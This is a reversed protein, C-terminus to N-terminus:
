KDRYIPLIQICFTIAGESKVRTNVEKDERERRMQEGNEDKVRGDM